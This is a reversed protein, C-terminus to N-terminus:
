RTVDLINNFLDPTREGQDMRSKLPTLIRIGFMGAPGMNTYHELLDNLAKEAAQWNRADEKPEGVTVGDFEQALTQTISNKINEFLIGPVLNENLLTETIFDAMEEARIHGKRNEEIDMGGCGGFLDSAKHISM